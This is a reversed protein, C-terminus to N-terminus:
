EVGQLDSRSRAIALLAPALGLLLWIDKAYVRSTFFAGALFGALAVFLARALMEMPLDRQRVFLRAAKLTSQLCFGVILLFLMLGVLGAEAWMQLYTNHGVKPTGVIYKGRVDAGPQLLYHVSSVPFNGIGVGHVPQDEVMRWGVTWLDVRGSGSGISSVHGRLDPSAVYRYYGVGALTLALMLVVLRGRWRSGVVIFAALGVALAILGGRSGTLFVGAACLGAAGLAAFRAPPSRKLAAALGLSLALGAVLM